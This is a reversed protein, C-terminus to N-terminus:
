FENENLRKKIENLDGVRKYLNKKNYQFFQERRHKKESLYALLLAFFNLFLLVLIVKM